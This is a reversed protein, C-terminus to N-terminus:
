TAVGLVRIADKAMFAKLVSLSLYGRFARELDEVTVEDRLSIGTNGDVSEEQFFESYNRFLAETSARSLILIAKEGNNKLKTVVFAGYSELEQFSVFKKQDHNLMEILANAALDEIGIYVSM